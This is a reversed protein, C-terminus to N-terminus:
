HGLTLRLLDGGAEDYAYLRSRDSPDPVLRRLHLAHVPYGAPAATADRSVAAFRGPPDAAGAVGRAPATLLAPYIADQPYRSGAGSGVGSDDSTKDVLPGDAVAMLVTGGPPTPDATTATPDPVPPLIIPPALGAPLDGTILWLTAVGRGNVHWVARDPPDLLLLSEDALGTLQWAEDPKLPGLEGAPEAFPRALTLLRPDLAAAPDFRLFASGDFHRLWLWMADGAPVLAGRALELSRGLGSDAELRGFDSLVTVTGAAPDFRGLAALPEVGRGGTFYFYLQTPGAGAAAGPAPGAALSQITGTGGPMGLAALIARTTLKTPAALGTRDPSYVVDQGADTEQVWFLRGDATVAVHTPRGADLSVVPALTLSTPPGADAASSSSPVPPPDCGVGLLLLALIAPLRM